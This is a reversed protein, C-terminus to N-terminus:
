KKEKKSAGKQDRTNQNAALAHSKSLNITGMHIFKDQEKKSNM